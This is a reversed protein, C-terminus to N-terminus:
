AWRLMFLLMDHETDFFVRNISSEDTAVVLWGNYKKLEKRIGPLFEESSMGKKFQEWGITRGANSYATSTKIDLEAVM